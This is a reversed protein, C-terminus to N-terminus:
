DSVIRKFRAAFPRFLLGLISGSPNGKKFETWRVFTELSLYSSVLFWLAETGVSFGTAMSISSAVLSGVGFLGLGITTWKTYKMADFGYHKQLYRQDEEPLLGWLLCFTDVWTSLDLHRKELYLRRIEDPSYELTSRFVTGEPAKKLFFRHRTKDAEHIKTSEILGYWTNEYAIGTLTNWHPKPLDSVIELDHGQGAVETVQDMASLYQDRFRPSEIQELSQQRYAPDFQRKVARVIEIPFTVPFSGSPEEAKVSELIRFLSEGLFYGGALYFPGAAGGTMMRSVGMIISYGGVVFLILASSTTMTTANVGYRNQLMVQDSAPLLGFFPLLLKIAITQQQQIRENKRERMWRLCEERTYAFQIRIPFREDWPNLYYLHRGTGDEEELVMEYHRDEFLVASGPFTTKADQSLMRQKWGPKPIPSDILLAYPGPSPLRTLFDGVFFHKRDLKSPNQM